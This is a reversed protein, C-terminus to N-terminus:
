YNLLEAKPYTTKAFLAHPCNVFIALKIIASFNLAITFFRNTLKNLHISVIKRYGPDSPFLFCKRFLWAIFSWVEEM